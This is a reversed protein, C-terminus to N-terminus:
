HLCESFNREITAALDSGFTTDTSHYSDIAPMAAFGIESGRGMAFNSWWWEQPRFHM